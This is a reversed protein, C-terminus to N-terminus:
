GASSYSQTSCSGPPKWRAEKMEMNCFLSSLVLLSVERVTWAAPAVRWASFALRYFDWGSLLHELRM